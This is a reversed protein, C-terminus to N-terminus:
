LDKYFKISIRRFIIETCAAYICYSIFTAIAAGHIGLRPILLVDLTLNLIVQLVLLLQKSKYNKTANYIPIIFSIYFGFISAFILIEIIPISQTYSPPFFAKIVPTALLGILIIVGTIVATFTNRKTRIYDTIIAKDQINKSVFATYYTNIMFSVMVLGKFIQYAFNYIGIQDLSVFRKLVINDGWNILYSAAYGLISWFGFHLVTRLNERSFKLPLISKYDIFIAFIPLTIILAIPYGYFVDSLELAGFSGITLIYLFYVTSFALEFSTHLKKRDLSLFLNSLFSRLSLSIFSLLFISKFASYELGTYQILDRGLFQFIIIFVASSFFIYSLVSTFTVNTKGTSQHEKNSEVSFAAMIPDIFVATGLFVIMKFLAFSGFLSPELTKAVFLPVLFDVVQALTKVGIFSIFNKSAFIKSLM